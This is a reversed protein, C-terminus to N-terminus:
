SGPFGGEPPAVYEDFRAVKGDRVTFAHVFGYGSPTGDLQGHARGRALVATEGDVVDDFELGFDSWRDALGAFFAGVAEHGRAHGGHPLVDPVNWDIDEAFNAMVAPMDARGFAEYTARILDVDSQSM